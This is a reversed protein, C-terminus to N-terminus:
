CPVGAGHSRLPRRVCCMFCGATSRIIALCHVACLLWICPPPSLGPVRPLLVRNQVRNLTSSHTPGYYYVKVLLLELTSEAQM